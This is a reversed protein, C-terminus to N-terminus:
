DVVICGLLLAVPGGGHAMSIVACAEVLTAAAYAM